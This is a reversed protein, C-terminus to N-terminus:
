KSCCRVNRNTALMLRDFTNFDAGTGHYLVLPEGNEDVVKSSGNRNFEQIRDVVSDALGTPGTLLRSGNARDADVMEPVPSAENEVAIAEISYARNGHGGAFEKVTLKVLRAKDGVLMPAFMRRIGIINPNGDRDSKVWGTVAQAFLTDLNAVALAHEAASESKHVASASLMKDLNSRSVTAEVGDVSVLKKGQFLKAQEQAEKFNNAPRLSQAALEWDGFWAKFEPSRVQHWQRENLKSPKGNPALLLGNKDRAETARFQHDGDARSFTAVGHDTEKDQITSEQQKEAEAKADLAQQTRTAPIPSETKQPSVAPVETSAKREIPTKAIDHLAMLADHM